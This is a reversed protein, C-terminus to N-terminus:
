LHIVVTREDLAHAVEAHIVVTEANEIEAMGLIRSRDLDGLRHSSGTTPHNERIRDDAPRWFASLASNEAM